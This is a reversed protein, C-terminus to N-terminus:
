TVPETWSADWTAPGVIGDVGLRKEAQFARCVAHCRPGFIGDDKGINWGRAAMRRQWVKLPEGYNRSARFSGDSHRVAQFYVNPWKPHTDPKTKPKATPKPPDAKIPQPAPATGPGIYRVGYFACLSAVIEEAVAEQFARSQVVQDGVSKVEVLAAPMTTGRLVALGRKDAYVGIDKYDTMPDLNVMITDALTKGPKSNPHHIVAFGKGKAGAWDLHISVFADAGFANALRCRENLGVFVDTTRTAGPTFGQRKAAEICLLTIALAVNKEHVLGVAGPDKGGHGADFWPKRTM